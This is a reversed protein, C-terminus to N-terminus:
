KVEQALKLAASLGVLAAGITPHQNILEDDNCAANLNGLAEDIAEVMADFAPGQNVRRVILAADKEDWTHLLEVSGQIIGYRYITGSEGEEPEDEVTRVVKWPLPSHTPKASPKQTKM